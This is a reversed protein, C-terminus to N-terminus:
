RRGRYLDSVAAKALSPGGRRMAYPSATAPRQGPVTIMGQGADKLKSLAQTLTDVQDDAADHPFNRLESLLDHVWENGPDGPYPLYVNSSEVEPTVARARAEKSGVPNVPKLGSVKDHLVELIAAGNAKKEVWRSQVWRGYKSEVSGWAQMKEITTTFSWRGRVQHVLYRNAGVRVWRQGVVWSATDSTSGFSADWSDLWKGNPHADPDFYVVQGDDTANDPRTTWFRWWGADFIAGKQPAPRQQYMASWLYTGVQEKVTGWRMIAQQEDEEVLPSYLPQGPERGLADDSSDAIAPLVIREWNRPDGEFDPSFIRGVFDDAHWRTMVVLVLFPPELRSQVDSIWWNWLSQRARLSHASAYDKIPDDIIFVKAGRGIIQGGVSTAYMGGGEVTEWRGGAGGDAKLAIGLEPNNEIQRRIERAWGATLGGDHSAMMIKWEPHRRLFWLPSYLSLLTSNHTPHLAEGVLYVGGEVQICRGPEDPAQEIASIGVRRKTGPYSGSKRELARGAPQGDHQNWHVRWYEGGRIVRDRDDAEVLELGARYGLSRVLSRVDEALRKSSSSFGVRGTVPHVTGDTDVLGALLSRRQEESATFYSTPVHKDWFVGAEKLATMLGGKVYQYHVGTDPHIYKSGMEYPVLEMIKNLDDEAGCISAKGTTGDGLWVGLTYPDVPLDTREPFQLAEISPLQFVARGGRSGKPGSWLKRGMLYRTEVTRWRHANRDHVVWEHNPHVLVSTGDTFRVRVKENSPESVALVATPQGSPTFVEDGARLDGHRVWGRTTMVPESDAVQKGARPPTSIAMYRNRGREVDRVAAAIRTSMLDLHPRSVYGPNVEIAQQVPRRPIGINHQIRYTRSIQAIRSVLARAEAENSAKAVMDKLVAIQEAITPVVVQAPGDLVSTPEVLPASETM